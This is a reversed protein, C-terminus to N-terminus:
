YNPINGLIKLLHDSYMEWIFNAQSPFSFIMQFIKGAKNEFNLTLSNKKGLKNELSLSYM